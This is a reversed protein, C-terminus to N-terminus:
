WFLFPNTKYNVWQYGKKTQQGWKCNYRPSVSETADTLDYWNVCCESGFYDLNIKYEVLTNLTVLEENSLDNLKSWFQNITQNLSKSKDKVIDKAKNIGNKVDTVLKIWEPSNAVIKIMNGNEDFKVLDNFAYDYITATMEMLRKGERTNRLKRM